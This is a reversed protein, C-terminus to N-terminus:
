IRILSQDLFLSFYCVFSLCCIKKRKIKQFHTSSLFVSLLLISWKRVIHCFLEMFGDVSSNKEKLIFSTWYEERMIPVRDSEPNTEM